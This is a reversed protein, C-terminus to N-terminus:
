MIGPFVTLIATEAAWNWFLYFITYYIQLTARQLNWGKYGTSDLM